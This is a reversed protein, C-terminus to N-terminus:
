LFSMRDQQVDPDYRPYIGGWRMAADGSVASNSGFPDREGAVGGELRKGIGDAAHAAPPGV